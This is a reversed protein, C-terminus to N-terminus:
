HTNDEPNESQGGCRQGTIHWILEREHTKQRGRISWEGSSYVDLSGEKGRALPTLRKPFLVEVTNLDVLASECQRQPNTLSEIWRPKITFFVEIQFEGDVAFGQGRSAQYRCDGVRM